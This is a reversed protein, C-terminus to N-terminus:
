SGKIEKWTWNGKNERLKQSFIPGIISQPGVSTTPVGVVLFNRENSTKAEKDNASPSRQRLSHQPKLLM